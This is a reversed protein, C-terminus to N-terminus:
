PKPNHLTGPRSEVAVRVDQENGGDTEKPNHLSVDVVSGSSYASDHDAACVAAAVPGEEEGAHVRGRVTSTVIAHMGLLAPTILLLPQPAACTSV